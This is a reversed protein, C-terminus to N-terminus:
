YETGAAKRAPPSIANNPARRNMSSYLVGSVCCLVSFFCILRFSAILDRSEMAECGEMLFIMIDPALRVAEWYAM